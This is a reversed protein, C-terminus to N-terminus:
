DALNGLLVRLSSDRYYHTTLWLDEPADAEPVPLAPNWSGPLPRPGTPDDAMLLGNANVFLLLTVHREPWAVLAALWVLAFAALVRGGVRALGSWTLGPRRPPTM